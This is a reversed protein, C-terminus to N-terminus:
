QLHLYLKQVANQCLHGKHWSCSQRWIKLSCKQQQAADDMVKPQSKHHYGQFLISCFLVSVDEICRIIYGTVLDAYKGHQHVSAHLHGLWHVQFLRPRIHDPYGLHTHPFMQISLTLCNEGKSALNVHHFVRSLVSKLNALNCPLLAKRHVIQLNSLTESLNALVHNANASPQLKETIDGSLLLM